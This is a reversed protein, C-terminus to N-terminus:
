SKLLAIAQGFVSPRVMEVAADRVTALRERKVLTRGLDHQREAM